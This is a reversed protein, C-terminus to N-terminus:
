VAYKASLKLLVACVENLARLEEVTWGEKGRYLAFTKDMEDTQLREAITLPASRVKVLLARAYGLHVRVNKMEESMTEVKLGNQLRERIYGNDRQPLTYQLEREARQMEKQRKRRQKSFLTCLMWIGTCFALSGCLCILVVALPVREQILVQWFAHINRM